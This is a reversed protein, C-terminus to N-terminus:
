ENQSWEPKIKYLWYIVGIIPILPILMIVLMLIFLLFAPLIASGGIQWLELISKWIAKLLIDLFLTDYLKNAIFNEIFSM